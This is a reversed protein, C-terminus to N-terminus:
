EVQFVTQKKSKLFESLYFYYMGGETYLIDSINKFSIVIFSLVPKRQLISEIGRSNCHILEVQLACLICMHTRCVVHLTNHDHSKYM